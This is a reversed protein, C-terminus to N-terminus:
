PLPKAIPKLPPAAGNGLPMRDVNMEMSVIQYYGATIVLDVMGREGFSKKVEAFRADSVQHTKYLESIFNYVLEEDAAMGQPRRGEAIAKVKAESLGAQIAAPQHVSWEYQAAWYRATLLIALEKLRDPVSMHFRVREGLGFLQRGMVPSHLSVPFSSRFLM